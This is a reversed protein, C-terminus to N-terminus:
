AEGRGLKKIGTKKLDVHKQGDPAVCCCNLKGWNKMQFDLSLKPLGISYAKACSVSVSVGGSVTYASIKASETVLKKVM